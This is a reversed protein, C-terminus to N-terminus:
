TIVRRLHQGLGTSIKATCTRLGAAGSMFVSVPIILDRASKEVVVCRVCGRPGRGPCGPGPGVGFGPDYIHIMGGPPPAPIELEEGAVVGLMAQAKRASLNASFLASVPSESHIFFHCLARFIAAMRKDQPAPLFPPAPGYARPVCVGFEIIRIKDFSDTFLEIGGVFPKEHTSKNERKQPFRNPM